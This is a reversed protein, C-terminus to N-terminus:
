SCPDTSPRKCSESLSYEILLHLLNDTDPLLPPSKSDKNERHQVHQVCKEQIMEENDEHIKTRQVQVYEEQIISQRTMHNLTVQIVHGKGKEEKMRKRENRMM